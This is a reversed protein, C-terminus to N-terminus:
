KIGNPKLSPTFLFSFKGVTPASAIGSPNYSANSENDDAGASRIIKGLPDETIKFLESFQDVLPKAIIILNLRDKM